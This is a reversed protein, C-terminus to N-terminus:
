SVTEANELSNNASDEPASERTVKTLRLIRRDMPVAVTDAQVETFRQEKDSGEPTWTRQRIRGVVLVPDGKRLSECLNTALDRWATVRMFVTEGNQWEGSTSDRFRPNAAISFNACAIGISTFRLEPDGTLNGAITIQPENLSM